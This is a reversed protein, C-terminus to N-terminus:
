RFIWYRSALFGAVALAADLLPKGLWAALRGQEADLLYVGTTSLATTLLWFVVFRIASARNLVSQGARSFTIRGNLWYGMLAGSIRALVNAPAVPVGLLTLAVFCAWDVLLQIGGVVGYLLAQRLMARYKGATTDDHREHTM